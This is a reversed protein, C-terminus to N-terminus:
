QIFQMNTPNIEKIFENGVCTDLYWLGNKERLKNPDFLQKQIEIQVNPSAIIMIKKNMNMKMYYHRMVECVQIASCTKGSGLGHYLLLSRYPTHFSIFNKIFLQHSSLEFAKHNYTDALKQVDKYNEPVHAKTDSFEDKLAIKMQIKPDDILPYLHDTTREGFDKVQRDTESASQMNEQAQTEQQQSDSQLKKKKLVLRKKM